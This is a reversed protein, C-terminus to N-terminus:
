SKRWEKLVEVARGIAAAEEATTDDYRLRELEVAMEEPTVGGARTSRARVWASVTLGAGAACREIAEREGPALRIPPLVDKRSTPSPPRGPGRKAPKKKTSM